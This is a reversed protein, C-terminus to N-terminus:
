LLPIWGTLVSFGAVIVESYTGPVTREGAWYGFFGLMFGAYEGPDTQKTMVGNTEIGDVAFGRHTSILNLGVFNMFSSLGLVRSTGIFEFDIACLANLVVNDFPGMRGLHRATAQAYVEEASVDSSVLGYQQFIQLRAAFADVASLGETEVSRLDARLEDWTQQTMQVTRLMPRPGTTDIFDITVVSPIHEQNAAEATVGVSCLILCGIVLICLPKTTTKM